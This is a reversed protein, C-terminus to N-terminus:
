VTYSTSCPSATRNKRSKVTRTQSRSDGSIDFRAPNPVAVFGSGDPILKDWVTPERLTGPFEDVFSQNPQFTIKERPVQNLDVVKDKVQQM